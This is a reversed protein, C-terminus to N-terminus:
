KDNGYEAVAAEKLNRFEIYRDHGTRGDPGLKTAVEDKLAHIVDIHLQVEFQLKTGRVELLLQCDRYAATEKANANAKAFRNKIRILTYASMIKQLATQMDNFNGFILALREMDTLRSVDNEYATRAKSMVREKGEDSNAKPPAIKPTSNSEYAIKSM